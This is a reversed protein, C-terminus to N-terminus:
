INKFVINGGHRRLKSDYCKEPFIGNFYIVSVMKIINFYASIEIFIM